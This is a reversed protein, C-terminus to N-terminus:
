GLVRAAAELRRETRRARPLGSPQGVSAREFAERREDALGREQAALLSATEARERALVRRVEETHAATEGAVAARVAGCADAVLRDSDAAAARTRRLAVALGGAALVAVVLCAGLIWLAM